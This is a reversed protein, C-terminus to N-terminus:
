IRTSDKEIIDCDIMIKDNGISHKKLYKIILNAATEGIELSRQSICTSSFPLIDQYNMYENDFFIVKMDQPVGIGCARIASYVHIGIIDGYSLIGDLDPNTRFYECIRETLDPMDKTVYLINSSKILLNNEMHAREYGSIRRASSSGYEAPVTILGINKCDRDILHQVAKKSMELHDSSVSSVDINHLTRDVFVVPFKNFALLLLDKNYRASSNPFVIIGKVGLEVLNSVLNDQLLDEERESMLLLHYGNQKLVTRAGSVINSIFNSGINPLLMCIFSASPEAKSNQKETNIYSGKGQYRYIYGEEQLETLARKATIRSTNFKMALQNESPLKYHPVQRNDAILQLLHDKIQKYLFNSM